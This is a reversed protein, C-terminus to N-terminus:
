FESLSLLPIYGTRNVLQNGTLDSYRNLSIYQGMANYAFDVRKERVENGSQTLQILRNLGDYSYSNTGSVLGNITDQISLMNGVNNYIFM